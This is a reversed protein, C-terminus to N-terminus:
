FGIKKIKVKTLALINLADADVILKKETRLVLNFLKKGWLSTGLGPGIVVVTATALLSLVRNPSTIGYVMIEPCTANILGVHEPRTAVTVLGAGVRLAAEAAIRVAGGMGHDGGIVLVRGFDGKHASNKRPTLANIEQALTLKQWSSQVHNFLHLPLDLDAGIIEGCHNRAAGLFLGVKLGIFTVTVTAVVAKGLIKGSDADIGSPVDLALKDAKYGNLADIASLFKGTVRSNLGIGFIADVIVDSGALEKASFPKTIIKLKKCKLAAKHTAGVLSATPALQLIKVKLKARKALSAVVYGDGANNGKGCVVTINKAKPWRQRLKQWAAKGARAMLLDEKIGLKDQALKELKRIEAIQYLSNSLM